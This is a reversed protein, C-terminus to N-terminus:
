PLFCDLPKHALFGIFARWGVFPLGRVFVNVSSATRMIMFVLVFVFLMDVARTTGVVMLVFVLMLLVNV